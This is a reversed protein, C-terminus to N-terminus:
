KTALYYQYDMALFGVATKTATRCWVRCAIMTKQEIKKLLRGGNKIVGELYVEPAGEKNFYFCSKKTKLNQLYTSIYTTVFFLLFLQNKSSNNRGFGCSLLSINLTQFRYIWKTNLSKRTKKQKVKKGLNQKNKGLNCFCAELQLWM